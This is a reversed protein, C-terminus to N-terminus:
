KMWSFAFSGPHNLHKGSWANILIRGLIILVRIENLKLSGNMEHMFVQARRKFLDINLQVKQWNSVSFGLQVFYINILIQSSLVFNQFWETIEDLSLLEERSMRIKTTSWQISPSATEMNPTPIPFGFGLPSNDKQTKLTKLPRPLVWYLSMWGNPMVVSPMAIFFHYSSRLQDFQSNSYKISYLACPINWCLKWHLFTHVMSSLIRNVRLKVLESGVM